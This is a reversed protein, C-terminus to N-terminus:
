KSCNPRSSALYKKLVELVADFDLPKGVHANMGAAMCREIDERFVNATMAVIPIDKAWPAHLDRIRRAAEYGDMEPMQVDMFIMDYKEPTAAFMRLAEAGNEACDIELLTPELLTLVIERNIEVDEALLIRSGAFSFIADTRARETQLQQVGLGESIIDAISSPFLPKSIFRTVGVKLAEEEIRSWAAPSIMFVVKGAADRAKLAKALHIGDFDPMKWDVFYFNYEGNREVAALAEGSSKATDCNVGFRLLINRFFKLIDPDDDVALVRIDGWNMSARLDANKGAGRNVQATFAFTSGQELESEIWIKGGMMEVISKSIVLGLGTGGFKRATSSEAQQFSSFLRAQQEPSIGIGTDTVEIKITCTGSEEGLLYTNLSISGNEPTFKIANSMLNTIVQALRQDDGTLTKPIANDIHVTLKQQKEDVRFSVVNIVRRLMDEFIFDEASLELRNAEIKSMDLIDNVVGLLHNSADDINTFCYDKREANSSSKGIATMGIIANLPTRIEHSMNALFTTKAVAAGEAKEKIKVLETVDHLLFVIGLLEQRADFAPSIAANAHMQEEDQFVIFENYIISKGSELVSRCNQLTKEAWANNGARKIIEFLTLGTLEKEDEFGFRKCILVNTGITYRLEKDLVFLISPFAELLLRNFINQKDKERAANDRLAIANEYMTSISERDHELKRILRQSKKLELRAQALQEALEQQEKPSLPPVVHENFEM